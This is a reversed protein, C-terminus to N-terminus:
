CGLSSFNKLPQLVISPARAKSILPGPEFGAFARGGGRPSWTAFFLGISVLRRYFITALLCLDIVQLAPFVFFLIRAGFAAKAKPTLCGQNCNCWHQFLKIAGAEACSWNRPRWNSDWRGCCGYFSDRSGWTTQLRLASNAFTLQLM